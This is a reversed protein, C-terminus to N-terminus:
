MWAKRIDLIFEDILMQKNIGSIQLDQLAKSALKVGEFYKNEEENDVGIMHDLCLHQFAQFFLKLDYKDEENKVALKNAMKFSNPGSVKAIQEFVLNMYDCFAKSDIKLLNGVDAITNSINLIFSRQDESLKLGGNENLYNQLEDKSYAQMNFVVARSRLTDLVNDVSNVSMLFYANNPPEETIKLIANKAVASMNQIDPMIFVTSDVLEYATDIMNRVAEIKCNDYSMTHKCVGYKHLETSMWDMICKKGSGDQGIFLCFRPVRNLGIIATIRSKLQQQGIM